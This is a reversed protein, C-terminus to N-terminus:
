QPNHQDAQKQTSVLVGMRLPHPWYGGGTPPTNKQEGTVVKIWCLLITLYEPAKVTLQRNTRELGSHSNLRGL